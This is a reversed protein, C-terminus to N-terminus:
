IEQHQYQHYIFKMKDTVSPRLLVFKTRCTCGIFFEPLKVQYLHCAVLDFYSVISNKTSLDLNMQCAQLKHKLIQIYHEAQGNTAPHGPKIGTHQCFQKFEDSLSISVNDSFLIKPLGNQSSVECLM